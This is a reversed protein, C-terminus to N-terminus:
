YSFLYLVNGRFGFKELKQLLSAPTESKTIDNVWDLEITSLGMSHLPGENEPEIHFRQKLVM